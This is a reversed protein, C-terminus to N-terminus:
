NNGYNNKLQKSIKLYVNVINEMDKKTLGVEKMREYNLEPEDKNTGDTLIVLIIGIAEKVSKAAPKSIILEM